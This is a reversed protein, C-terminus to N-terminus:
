WEIRELQRRIVGLFEERKDAPLHEDRLLDAMVLMSTLPTRLQHSIDAMADAHATKEAQLRENYESLM